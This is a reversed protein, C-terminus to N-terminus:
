CDSYLTPFFLRPYMQFRLTVPVRASLSQSTVCCPIPVRIRSAMSAVAANRIVQLCHLTYQRLSLRLSGGCSASAITSAIRGPTPSGAVIRSSTPPVLSCRTQSRAITSLTILSCHIPPSLVRMSRTWCYRSQSCQSQGSTTARFVADPFISQSCLVTM